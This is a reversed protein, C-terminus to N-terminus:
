LMHLTTMNSYLSEIYVYVCFIYTDLICTLQEGRAIKLRDCCYSMRIITETHTLDGDELGECSDNAESPTSM